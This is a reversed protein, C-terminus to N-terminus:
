RRSKRSLWDSREVRYEYYSVDTQPKRKAGTPAHCVGEDVRKGGVAEQMKQSAVNLRNPTARVAQCDTHTFLYDVLGQKIESGYGQGWYDPLLKVDTESVGDPAPAGLKCEGIAAGSEMEVVILWENYESPGSKAFHDRIQDRTIDLGEPFGVFTMVRPDTWLTYLMNIDDDTPAAKRIILRTTTFIM